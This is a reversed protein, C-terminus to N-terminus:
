IRKPSSLTMNLRCQDLGTLATRRAATSISSKSCMNNIGCQVMLAPLKASCSFLTHIIRCAPEKLLQASTAVSM